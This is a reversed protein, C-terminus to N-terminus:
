VAFNRCQIYSAIDPLSTVLGKTSYAQTLNWWVRWHENTATHVECIEYRLHCVNHLDPFSASNCACHTLKQVRILSCYQSPPPSFSWKAAGLLFLVWQLSAVRTVWYTLNFVARLTKAMCLNHPLSLKNLRVTEWGGHLNSGSQREGEMFTQAPGDRVRGLPKLRVTERLPKLRVTEWGGILIVM